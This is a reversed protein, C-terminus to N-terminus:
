ESGRKIYAMHNSEEIEKRSPCNINKRQLGSIKTKVKSQSLVSIVPELKKNNNLAFVECLM